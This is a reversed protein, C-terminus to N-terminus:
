SVVAQPSSSVGAAREAETPERKLSKVSGTGSHQSLRDPSRIGQVRADLESRSPGAMDEERRRKQYPEIYSMGEGERKVGSYMDPVPATRAGSILDAESAAHIQPLPQNLQPPVSSRTRADTRRRGSSSSRRRGASSGSDARRHYGHMSGHPLPPPAQHHQSPMPPPNPMLQVANAPTFGPPIHAPVAPLQPPSSLGTGTASPHLQFVPANARASM